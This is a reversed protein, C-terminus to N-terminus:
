KEIENYKQKNNHQIKSAVINLKKDLSNNFELGKIQELKSDIKNILNDSVSKIVEMNEKLTKTDNGHTWGAVYKFTYDSTDLNLHDCVIFAISEARVEKTSRDAKSYESAPNDVISHAIEHVMTKLTQTEPLDNQIKIENTFPMYYGNPGNLNAYSIPVDSIEILIDKLTDYNNVNATLLEPKFEPLEKGHTQSVDFVYAKKFNLFTHEETETVSEGDVIKEVEIQKKYPTPSIIMIGKENKNIFRGLQKWKTFGAVQTADPKQLYILLQNNLSYNHFKSCFSLWNKYEYSDLAKQVGQELKETIEKYLKKDM